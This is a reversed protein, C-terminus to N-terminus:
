KILTLCKYGGKLSWTNFYGEERFIKCIKKSQFGQECVLLYKKDDLIESATLVSTRLDIVIYKCLESIKQHSIEFDNETEHNFQTSCLPCNINKKWRLIKSELSHLNFIFNEGNNLHKIGLIVKLTENALLTGFVGATPPLVGALLCSDATLLEASDFWLCRLCPQDTSLSFNFLKIEGEIQDISGQILIKKLKYCNDHILIKTKINDTCDLILDYETLISAINTADIYKQYVFIKSKPNILRLRKALTESKLLGIDQETFLIQRPLNSLEIKDFDVIGITGVGSSTLYISAPVGLGGAGIILIKANHIKDQGNTGVFPLVIQRQYLENMITNVNIAHLGSQTM